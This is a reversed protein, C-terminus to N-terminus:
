SCAFVLSSAFLLLLFSSRVLLISQDPHDPGYILDWLTICHRFMKLSM